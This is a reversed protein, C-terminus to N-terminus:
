GAQGGSNELDACTLLQRVRSYSIVHAVCM